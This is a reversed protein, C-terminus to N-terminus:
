FPFKKKLTQLHVIAQVSVQVIMNPEDMMKKEAADVGISQFPCFGPIVM